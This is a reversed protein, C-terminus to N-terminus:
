QSKWDSAGSESIYPVQVKREGLYTLVMKVSIRGSPLCASNNEHVQNSEHNM